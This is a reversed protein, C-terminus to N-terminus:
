PPRDRHCSTKPSPRCRFCGDTICECARRIRRCCLTPLDHYTLAAKNNTVTKSATTRVTVVSDHWLHRLHTARLNNPFYTAIYKILKIISSRSHYKRYTTFTYSLTWYQTRFQKYQVDFLNFLTTINWSYKGNQSSEFINQEPLTITWSLM